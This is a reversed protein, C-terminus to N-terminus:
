QTALRPLSSTRAKLKLLTPLNSSLRQINTSHLWRRIFSERPTTFARCLVYLIYLFTPTKPKTNVTSQQSFGIVTSTRVLYQSAGCLFLNLFHPKQPPATPKQQRVVQAILHEKKPKGWKADAFYPGWFTSKVMIKSNADISTYKSCSDSHLM